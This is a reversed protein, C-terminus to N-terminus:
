GDRCVAESHIVAIHDMQVHALIKGRQNKGAAGGTLVDHYATQDVAEDAHILRVVHENGDVTLGKFAAVRNIVKRQTEKFVSFRLLSGAEPMPAPEKKGM